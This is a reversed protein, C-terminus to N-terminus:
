AGDVHEWERALQEFAFCVMSLFFQSAAFRMGRWRKVPEAADPERFSRSQANEMLRGGRRGPSGQTDRM